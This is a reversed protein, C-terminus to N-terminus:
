GVFTPAVLGRAVSSRVWGRRSLSYLWGDDTSVYLPAGPASVLNTARGRLTEVTSSASSDAPGDIKVSLVRSTGPQGSVLVVASSATRWALDRIRSPSGPVSLRRAASLGLVRGRDDRRVRALVLRDQGNDRRLQALLRTGDRSLAFRTVDQGSLGPAPVTRAAGNRVVSLRAGSGARDLLWLQGYLDYAPRLLSSGVYV